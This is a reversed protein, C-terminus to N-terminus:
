ARALRLSRERPCCGTRLHEQHHAAATAHPAKVAFERLGAAMNDANEVAVVPILGFLQHSPHIHGDYGDRYMGGFLHYFLQAGHERIIGDEGIKCTDLAIHQFAHKFVVVSGNGAKVRHVSRVKVVEALLEHHDTVAPTFILAPPQGILEGEPPHPYFHDVRDAVVFGHVNNLAQAVKDGKQM